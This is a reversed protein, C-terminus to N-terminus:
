VTVANSALLSDAGDFWAEAAVVPPVPLTV